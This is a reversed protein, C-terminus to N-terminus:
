WCELHPPLPPHPIQLPHAKVLQQISQRWCAGDLSGTITRQQWQPLGHHKLNDAYKNKIISLKQFLNYNLNIVIETKMGTDQNDGLREFRMQEEMARKEGGKCDFHRKEMNMNNIEKGPDRKRRQGAM